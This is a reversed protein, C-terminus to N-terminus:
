KDTEGGVGVAADAAEELRMRVGKLKDVMNKVEESEFEFDALVDVRVLELKVREALLQTDRAHKRSMEANVHSQNASIQTQQLLDVANV